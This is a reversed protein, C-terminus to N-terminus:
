KKKAVKKVPKADELEEAWLEFQHMMIVEHLKSKVYTVIQWVAILAVGTWFLEINM